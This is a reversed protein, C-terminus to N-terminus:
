CPHSGNSYGSRAISGAGDKLIAGHVAPTLGVRDGRHKPSDCVTRDMNVEGSAPSCDGNVPGGIVHACDQVVARHVAPAHIGVTLPAVACATRYDAGTSTIALVAVSGHM